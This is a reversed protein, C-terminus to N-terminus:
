FEKRVEVVKIVDNKNKKNRFITDTVKEWKGATGNAYEQAIEIAIYRQRHYDIIFDNYMICFTITYNYKKYKSVM